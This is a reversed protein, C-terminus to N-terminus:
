QEIEERENLSYLEHEFFVFYRGDKRRVLYQNVNNRKGRYEIVVGKINCFVIGVVDGQKFM